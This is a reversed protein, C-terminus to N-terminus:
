CLKSINYDELIGIAKAHVKDLRAYQVIKSKMARKPLESFPLMVKVEEDGIRGHCYSVDWTPYGPNGLLRLRAIRLDPHDWSVHGRREIEHCCGFMPNTQCVGHKTAM